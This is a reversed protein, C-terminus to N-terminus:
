ASVDLRLVARQADVALRFGDDIAGAAAAERWLDRLEEVSSAALARNSFSLPMEVANTPEVEAVMDKHRRWQIIELAHQAARWGHAIDFEHLTGVDADPPVLLVYARDRDLQEPLPTWEEVVCRDGRDEYVASMWPARAYLALQMATSQPYKVANPGSKLDTLILDTGSGHQLMADFRGCVNIPDPYAVFREAMGQAPRLDYRDLTRRLVDADRRQQDTLLRNPQDLLILELVKHMQTGRDAKDHARAMESLQKAASNGRERSEIDVALNELVKGGNEAVDYLAGLAVMRTGWQELTFRDSALKAVSSVGVCYKGGLQYVHREDNYTMRPPTM